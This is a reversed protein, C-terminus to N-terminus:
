PRREGALAAVLEEAAVVGVDGVPERGADAPGRREQARQDLPQRAGGLLHAEVVLRLAEHAARVQRRDLAVVGPLLDERRPGPRAARRRAADRVRDVDVAGAVGLGLAGLLQRPQLVEVEADVQDVVQEHLGVPRAHRVRELRPHREEVRDDGLEGQGQSVCCFTRPKELFRSSRRATAGSSGLSITRPRLCPNEIGTAAQSRPSRSGKARSTREGSVISRWPKRSGPGDRPDEVVVDRAPLVEAPLDPAQEGEREPEVAVRPLRGAAAGAGPFAPTIGSM